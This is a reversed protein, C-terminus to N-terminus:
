PCTRTLRYALPPSWLSVIDLRRAFRRTRLATEVFSSGIEVFGTPVTVNLAPARPLSRTRRRESRRHSSAPRIMRASPLLADTLHRAAQVHDAGIMAPCLRPSVIMSALDARM